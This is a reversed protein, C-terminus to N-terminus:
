GAGDIRQGEHPKHIFFKEVLANVLVRDGHSFGRM